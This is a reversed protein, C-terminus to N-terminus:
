PRTQRANNSTADGDVLWKLVTGYLAEPAVPKSVFDNMGAELCRTSDEGFANATFAIIPLPTGGLNIRIRRTAEIGDMVPMQMDMLILAYPARAQQLAEVAAAGNNTIHVVLGVDELLERAVEQNMPDDEAVLIHTGQFDTRLIQEANCDIHSAAAAPTAQPQPLKELCATFWFTSGVGPTSSAGAEGGMLRALRRTIALGLGTGGHTRTTSSDGQLFPEFLTALVDPPIGPGTDSVEVRIRIHADDEDDILTRLTITGRSTFKVANSALNLFAQTLRTLDGKVTIPLLATETEIQLGKAQAQEAIMSLITGPLQRINLACSEISVKGAEIKSFDLIDNIVRLLHNASNSIKDLKDRQETDHAKRLLLHTLGVIANMPTRIEHSMNALFDSKARNALAAVHNAQRLELTRAEVLQELHERYRQLEAEAKAREGIEFQLADIAQNRETDHRVISRTVRVGTILVSSAALVAALLLGIRSRQFQRNIETTAAETRANTIDTLKRLALALVKDNESQLAAELAAPSANNQRLAVIHHMDDRYLTVYNRASGLLRKEEDGLPGARGYADLLDALAALESTFREADTGGDQLYHNFHQTAYGLHLAGRLTVQHRRAIVTSMETWSDTLRALMVFAILVVSLVAVLTAGFSGLLAHKLKM